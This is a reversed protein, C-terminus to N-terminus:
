DPRYDGTNNSPEHHPDEGSTLYNNFNEIVTEIRVLDTTNAVLCGPCINKDNIVESLFEEEIAYLKKLARAIVSICNERSATADDSLLSDIFDKIRAENLRVKMEEIQIDTNEM